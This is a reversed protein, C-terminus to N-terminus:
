LFKILQLIVSGGRVNLNGQWIGDPIYIKDESVTKSCIAFLIILSIIIRQKM